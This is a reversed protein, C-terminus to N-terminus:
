HMLLDGVEDDFIRTMEAFRLHTLEFVKKLFGILASCVSFSATLGHGLCLLIDCAGACTLLEQYM